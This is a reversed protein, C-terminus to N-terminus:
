RFYWWVALGGFVYVVFLYEMTRDKPITRSLADTNLSDGMEARAFGAGGQVGAALLDAALAGKWFGAFFFYVGSYIILARSFQWVQQQYAFVLEVAAGLLVGALGAIAGWVVRDWLNAPSM